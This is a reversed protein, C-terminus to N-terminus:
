HTGVERQAKTKKVTSVNLARSIMIRPAHTAITNAQPM